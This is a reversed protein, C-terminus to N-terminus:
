VKGLKGTAPEYVELPTTKNLYQNAASHLQAIPQTHCATCYVGKPIHVEVYNTVSEVPNKPNHCLMCPPGGNPARPIHVKTGTGHCVSCELNITGPGCHIKHPDTGHCKLCGNPDEHAQYEAAKTHCLLCNVKATSTAAKVTATTTATPTPTATPAPTATATATPTATTTATATATPTATVNTTKQQACGAVFGSVLLVVAILLLMLKSKM